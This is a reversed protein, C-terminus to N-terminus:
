KTRNHAEYLYGLSMVVAALAVGVAEQALITRYKATTKLSTSNPTFGLESLKKHSEAYDRLFAEADQSQM